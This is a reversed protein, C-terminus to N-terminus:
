CMHQTQTAIVSLCPPTASICPPPVEPSSYVRLVYRYPLCQVAGSPSIGVHTNYSCQAQSCPTLRYVTPLVNLRPRVPPPM